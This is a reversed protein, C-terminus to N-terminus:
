IIDVPIDAYVSDCHKKIAIVVNQVLEDSFGRGRTDLMIRQLSGEPLNKARSSVQRELERYLTNLCKDSALNYNKVEIAELQNNVMRVVDPRTADPTGYPVKKGGLFSVQWEGGYRELAALESEQPTPHTGEYSEVWKPVELVEKADKDETKKSEDGLKLRPRIKKKLAKGVGGAVAGSIAGWKFDESAALTGAKMAAEFDNTQMGTIVGASVGGMVASSVAFKAATKASATFIVSVTPATGATVISVTVCVLIVGSGIAVNKLVQGYTDELGELEKVTTRGDEALTFVYKTGQFFADLEQLTYGFFINAQSNYALEDLYEKSIYTTQISEIVYDDSQLAGELEAYIEDSVYDQLAPDNLGSFNLAEVEEKDAELVFDDSNMEPVTNAWVASFCCNMLLAISLMIVLLKRM